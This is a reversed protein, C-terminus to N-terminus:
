FISKGQLFLHYKREFNGVLRRQRKIESRVVRRLGNSIYNPPLAGEEYYLGEVLWDAMMRHALAREQASKSPVGRKGAGLGEGTETKM